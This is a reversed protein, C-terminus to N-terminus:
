ISWMWKDLVYYLSQDSNKSVIIAFYYTLFDSDVYYKGDKMLNILKWDVDKVVGYKDLTVGLEKVIEEFDMKSVVTNKFNGCKDFLKNM